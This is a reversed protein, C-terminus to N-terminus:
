LSTEVSVEVIRVAPNDLNDAVWQTTVLAKTMLREEEDLSFWCLDMGSFGAAQLL